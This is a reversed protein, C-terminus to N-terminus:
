APSAMAFRRRYPPRSATGALQVIPASSSPGWHLGPQERILQSSRRASDPTPAGAGPPRGWRLARRRARWRRRSAGRKILVYPLIRCRLRAGEDRLWTAYPSGASRYAQGPFSRGDADVPTRRHRHRNNSVQNRPEPCAEAQGGPHLSDAYGLVTAPTGPRKPQYRDHPVTNQVGRSSYRLRHARPTIAPVRPPGLDQHGNVNPGIGRM